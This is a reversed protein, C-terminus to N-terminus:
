RLRRRSRHGYSQLYRRSATPPRASPSPSPSGTLLLTSYQRLSGIHFADKEKSGELATRLAPAAVGAAAGIGGIELEYVAASM